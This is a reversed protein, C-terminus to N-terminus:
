GDSMARQPLLRRDRRSGRAAQRAAALGQQRAARRQQAVLIGIVVLNLLNFGIGAAFAPAYFGFHDYLLGATWSGFAMGAQVSALVMPLRWAAELPPFLARIVLAYAPIIGSFGLGYFASVAFLGAEDQTRSFAVMAIMQLFSCALVTVLGGFRDSLLGWFQRSIFAVGLMMSLMAAGYARTIGLDTCLAVIHSQPMAMPICCLVAAIWLLLFVVRRDWGLVLGGDVPGPSGGGQELQEPPKGFFIVVIVIIMLSAALGYALMTAQWGFLAIGREFIPPWLAGAVYTGSSILALASGRRRDFWCSVYVYLPANIGGNGLVGIFLGHGIWLWWRGGLTSVSLGTAIMVAGLLTTLRIGYRQAVPGMVVGGLATGLWALSVGLAPVSRAGGLDTALSTLGVTAIWPGGFSFGLTALVALAVTWSYRTEISTLSHAGTQPSSTM